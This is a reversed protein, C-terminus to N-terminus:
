GGMFELSFICEISHEALKIICVSTSYTINNNNNNYLFLSIIIMIASM